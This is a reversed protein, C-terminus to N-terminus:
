FSLHKPLPRWNHIDFKSFLSILVWSDCLVRHPLTHFDVFKHLVYNKCSICSIIENPLKMLLSYKCFATTHSAFSIFSIKAFYQAFTNLPILKSLISEPISNRHNHQCCLLGQMGGCFRNCLSKSSNGSSLLNM